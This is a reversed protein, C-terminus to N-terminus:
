NFIRLASWWVLQAKEIIITLLNNELLVEAM